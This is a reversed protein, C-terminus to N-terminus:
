KNFIRRTQPMTICANGKALMNTDTVGPPPVDLPDVRFVTEAM